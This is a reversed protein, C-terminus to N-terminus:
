PKVPYAGSPASAAVRAAAQFLQPEAEKEHRVSEELEPWRFRYGAAVLKAPQIRRSALLFEEGMEGMILRVLFAPMTGGCKQELAHSAATAFEANRLPNPSTANVPGSLSEATLAFEIISALEDRGIWSIWQQGDGGQFGIRLLAAGGVVMPMRLHVVRIGAASAPSTAAEGDLDLKALFGTGTPSDETLISDGSPPYCGQGAACILVRPKRQCAVLSKALLGNTAVRNACMKEKAKKTWRMPWRMCALNVVADFGELGAVDIQGADPDWRIEGPGPARRVLRTVQHGGAVLHCIVASGVMGNSGAILIKM